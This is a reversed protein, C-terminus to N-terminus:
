LAEPAVGLRTRAYADLLDAELGTSSAAIVRDPRVLVLRAGGLSKKLAGEPDPWDGANGVQVCHLGRAAIQRSLAIGAETDDLIVVSHRRSDLLDCLRREGSQPDPLREGPRVGGGSSALVIPSDTYSLELMGVQRGLLQQVRDIRLAFQAVMDRMTALAGPHLTMVKTARTTTNVMAQAVARREAEYSDLLTEHDPQAREVLAIRWILSYADQVGTNLGQGGVPSHLHAADGAIFVRGARYRQAVGQKLVFQSTWELGQAGFSRGLRESFLQDVFAPSIDVKENAAHGAMHAIIRWLGPKPMPVVFMLGEEALVTAGEDEPLGADGIADAIVFTEDLSASDFGLQM